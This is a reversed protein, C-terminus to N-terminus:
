GGRGDHGGAGEEEEGEFEAVADVRLEDADLMGLRGFIAFSSEAGGCEVIPVEVRGDEADTALDALFGLCDHRAVIM